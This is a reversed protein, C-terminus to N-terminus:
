WGHVPLNKVVEVVQKAQKHNLENDAIYQATKIKETDTELQKLPRVSEASVDGSKVLQKVETPYGHLSLLHSIYAETIGIKKSLAYASISLQTLYDFIAEAKEVETLDKRQLNESLM